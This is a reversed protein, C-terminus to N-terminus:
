FQSYGIRSFVGMRFFITIGLVRELNLKGSLGGRSSFCNKKQAELNEPHEFYLISMSYCILKNATDPRLQRVQTVHSRKNLCM